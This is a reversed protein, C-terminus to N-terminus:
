EGAEEPKEKQAKRAAKREAIERTWKERLMVLEAGLDKHALTPFAKLLRMSQKRRATLDDLKALIAQAAENHADAECVGRLREVSGHLDRLDLWSYEENYRALEQVYGRLTKLRRQLGLLTYLTHALDAALIAVMTWALASQLGPSLAGILQEALPDLLYTVAVGMLGFLLANRLCIRGKLNFKRKSYDWWRTHFLTELLWGTFYELVTAALMAVVFVLPPYAKLPVCTLLILLAGFGYIPCYPGALFGRNVVKRTGVSVWISECVWGAIAYLSFYLILIPATLPVTM